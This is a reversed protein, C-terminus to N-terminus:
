MRDPNAHNSYHVVHLLFQRCSKSAEIVILAKRHHPYYIPHFWKQLQLFESLLVFEIAVADSRYAIATVQHDVFSKLM